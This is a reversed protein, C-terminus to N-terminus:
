YGLREKLVKIMKRIERTNLPYKGTEFTWILSEGQYLGNTEYERMKWFANDRYERDDMIGFHEWYIEKRERINLLTFDPHVIRSRLKLPKEYLFPVDNEDLMDAVIVESKSRVRLGRRTYFETTEERFFLKEYVQNKWKELYQEDTLYIPSILERKGSAMSSIASEFPAGKSISDCRGLLALAKNLAKIIGEYYEMQALMTALKENNKKIYEGNVESGKKRIFYQYGKGHKAARLMCDEPVKQKLKRLEALTERKSNEFFEITKTVDNKEIM